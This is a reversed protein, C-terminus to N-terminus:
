EDGSFIVIDLIKVLIQFSEVCIFAFGLLEREKLFLFDIYFSLLHFRGVKYKSHFESIIKRGADQIYAL